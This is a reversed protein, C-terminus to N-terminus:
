RVGEESGIPAAAGLVRGTDHDTAGPKGLEIEREIRDSVRIYLLYLLALVPWGLLITLMYHTPYGFLTSQTLEPFLFYMPFVHTLAMAVVFSILVSYCEKKYSKNM